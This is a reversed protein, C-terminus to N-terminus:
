FLVCFGLKVDENMKILCVREFHSCNKQSIISDNKGSKELVMKGNKPLHSFIKLLM